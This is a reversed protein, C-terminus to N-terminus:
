CGRGGVGAGGGVPMVFSVRDQGGDGLGAGLWGHLEGRRAGDGVAGKECPWVRNDDAGLTHDM